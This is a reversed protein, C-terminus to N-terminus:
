EDTLAEPTNDDLIDNSNAAHEFMNDCSISSKSMTQKSINLVFMPQNDKLMILPYQSGHIGNVCIVNNSDTIFFEMNANADKQSTETEREEELETHIWELGRQLISQSSGMNIKFFFGFAMFSIFRRLHKSKM